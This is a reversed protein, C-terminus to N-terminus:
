HIIETLAKLISDGKIAYHSEDWVCEGREILLVQPSEHHVGFKETVADSIRRGEVVDVFHMDAKASIEKFSNEIEGKTIVCTGCRPSHKYILQPRIKSEEALAEVQELDSLIQWYEQKETTNSSTNEM